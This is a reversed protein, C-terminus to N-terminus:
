LEPLSDGLLCNCSSHQLGSDRELRRSHKNHSFASTAKFVVNLVVVFYWRGLIKGALRSALKVPLRSTGPVSSGSTWLSPAGDAASTPVHCGGSTYICSACAGSLSRALMESHPYWVERFHWVVHTQYREHRVSATHPRENYAPSCDAPPAGDSVTPRYGVNRSVGAIMPLECLPVPHLLQINRQRSQRLVPLQRESSSLDGGALTQGHLWPESLNSLQRCIPGLSRAAECRTSQWVMTRRGVSTQCSNEQVAAAATRNLEGRILRFHVSSFSCKLKPGYWMSIQSAVSFMRWM